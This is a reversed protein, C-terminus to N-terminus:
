STILEEREKSSGSKFTLSYKTKSRNIDVRTSNQHIITFTNSAEDAVRFFLFFFFFTHKNTNLSTMQNVINGLYSKIHLRTKCICVKIM